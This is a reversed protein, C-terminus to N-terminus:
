ACCLMTPIDGEGHKGLEIFHGCCTDDDRTRAVGEGTCWEMGLPRVVFYTASSVSCVVLGVVAMWRHVYRLARSDGVQPSGIPEVRAHSFLISISAEYVMLVGVAKCM